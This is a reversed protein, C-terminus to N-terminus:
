NSFTCQYSQYNMGVGTGFILNRSYPCVLHHGPNFFLIDNRREEPIKNTIDYDIGDSYTVQGKYSKKVNEKTCLIQKKKSLKWIYMQIQHYACFHNEYDLCIKIKSLDFSHASNFLYAIKKASEIRAYKRSQIQTLASDVLQHNKLYFM